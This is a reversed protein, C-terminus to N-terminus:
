VRTGRKKIFLSHIKKKALYCLSPGTYVIYTGSSSRTSTSTGNRGRHNSFDGVNALSTVISGLEGPIIYKQIIIFTVRCSVSIFRRGITDTYTYVHSGDIPPARKTSIFQIPIVTYRLTYMGFFFHRFTVASLRDFLYFM